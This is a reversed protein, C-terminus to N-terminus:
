RKPRSWVAALMEGLRDITAPQDDRRVEHLDEQSIDFITQAEELNYTAVQYIFRELHARIETDDMVVTFSLLDYDACAPHDQLQELAQLIDRREASLRRAAQLNHM